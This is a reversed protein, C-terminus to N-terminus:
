MSSSSVQDWTSYDISTETTNDSTKVFLKMTLDVYSSDLLISSNGQLNLAFYFTSEGLNMGTTDSGM